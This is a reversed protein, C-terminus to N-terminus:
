LIQQCVARRVSPPSVSFFKEDIKKVSPFLNRVILRMLHMVIKLKNECDFLKKKHMRENGVLAMQKKKVFFLDLV